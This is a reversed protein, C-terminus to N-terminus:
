VNREALHGVLRALAALRRGARGPVELSVPSAPADAGLAVCADEITKFRGKRMKAVEIRLDVGRQSIAVGDEIALGLYFQGWSVVVDDPRAFSLWDSRWRDLSVGGSIAEDTLGAHRSTSRALTRRPAVISQFVDGTSPRWAAWHIIEPPQRDPDRRPWANAEGQVCLLRDWDATLSQLLTPKAPRNRRRVGHHRRAHVDHIFEEQRAVMAQFPALLSGFPGRDPELIGLVEALAEITSVCFEAPQRRIRYDSPHSPTFAVRPLAKLFPNLTLLKKALSWTGDLVVLTIDKDRPLDAVNMAEPGPFLVYAPVPADV